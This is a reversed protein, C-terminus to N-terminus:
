RSYSLLAIHLMNLRMYLFYGVATGSAVTYLDIISNSDWIEAKVNACIFPASTSV